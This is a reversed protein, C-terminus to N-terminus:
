SFLFYYLIFFTKPLEKDLTFFCMCHCKKVKKGGQRNGQGFLPYKLLINHFYAEQLLLKFKGSSM